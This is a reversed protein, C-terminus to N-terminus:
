ASREVPDTWLMKLAGQVLEHEAEVSAPPFGLEEGANQVARDVRFGEGVLMQRRLSGSLCLFKLRSKPCTRCSPTRDVPFRDPSGPTQSPLTTARDLRPVASHCVECAGASATASQPFETPSENSRAGDRRMACRGCTRLMGVDFLFGSGESREKLGLPLCSRHALPSHSRLSWSPELGQRGVL